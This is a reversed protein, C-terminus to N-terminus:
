RKAGNLFGARRARMIRKAATSTSIHFRDAVARTVPDGRLRADSYVRAVEHLDDATLAVGRHGGFRVAADRYREKAKRSRTERASRTVSEVHRKRMERVLGGLPIRRLTEATVPRQRGTGIIRVEVPEYRGDILAWWFHVGWTIGADDTWHFHDSPGEPEYPKRTEAMVAFM